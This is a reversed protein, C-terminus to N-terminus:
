NVSEMFAANARRYLDLNQEAVKLPDFDRRVKEQGARGLEARRAGDGLLRSISEALAAADGPEVIIGTVGDEVTEPIAGARTCVVPLGFAMAEVVSIGFSEFYSPMVFIMARKYWESVESTNQAGLWLVGDASKRGQELGYANPPEPMQWPGALVFTAHPDNRHVRKATELLVEIGKVPALRGSYFVIREGDRNRVPEAAAQWVESSIPNPIVRVRGSEWGRRKVIENAQYQSPTTIAVARNSSYAELFDNCRVSLDVPIGSHKRFAFESGHLRIVLPAIDKLFLAGSEGCELVDIKERSAVQAVQRRFALSWELQRLPLVALGKLVPLKSLYWHASPLRAHHVQVNGNEAEFHKTEGAAAFLTVRHGATLLPPIIARLYAAIGAGQGNGYPSETAVFGINM